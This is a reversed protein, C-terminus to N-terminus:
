FYNVFGFHIRAKDLEVPNNMQSGVAYYVSFIGADTEFNLGAGFGYPKDSLVPTRSSNRYWAGNWFLIFNSNQQLLYRLETNIIAYSSAFMSQEDFGKLTRIGGIRFLENFFINESELHAAMVQWRVAARSFLPVYLEANLSLSYQVYRLRVSDYLSYSEGNSGTLRLNNIANNRLVQKVGAGGNFEISYGKRPNLFYDYRSIRFGSGYQDYRIDSSTPLQRTAKIANTDVTLLATTQLNYFVKFYDTGTFRYQFTFENKVDLFSTDFKLLDLGYGFAINTRLIYPWMFRVKLDQSNNLFSRYNIGLEKGSGLINLLRLNAEGTIVLKNNLQSNPAFGIIGDV